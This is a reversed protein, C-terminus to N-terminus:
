NHMRMSTGTLALGFWDPEGHLHIVINSATKCTFHLHTAVAHWRRSHSHGDKDDCDITTTEQLVENLFIRAIDSTPLPKVAFYWGFDETKIAASDVQPVTDVAGPHVRSWPTYRWLHESRSPVNADLYSTM